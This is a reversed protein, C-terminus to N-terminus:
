EAPGRDCWKEVSAEADRTIRSREEETYVSPNLPDDTKRYIFSANRLDQLDKQAKACNERRKKREEKQRAKKKEAEQRQAEMVKLLRQQKQLRSRSDPDPQPAKPLKVNEADEGVARDSYHTKGKEDVWKYIEASAQVSFLLILALIGTRLSLFPRGCAYFWRCFPPEVSWTNCSTASRKGNTLMM